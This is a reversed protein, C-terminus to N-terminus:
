FFLRRENKNSTVLASNIKVSEQYSDLMMTNRRSFFQLLRWTDGASCGALWGVQLCGTGCTMRKVRWVNEGGNDARGAVPGDGTGVGCTMSQRCGLLRDLKGTSFDESILGRRRAQAPTKDGGGRLRPPTKKGEL